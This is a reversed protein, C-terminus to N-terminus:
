HPLGAKQLLRGMRPDDRLRDFAPDVGLDAAYEDREEVAQELLAFAQDRRGLAAHVVAKVYPSAGPAKELERLVEEAEEPRGAGAAVYGYVALSFGDEPALTRAQGAADLAESHRGLDSYTAALNALLVPSEPFLALAEEYARVSEEARRAYAYMSGLNSRAGSAMPDVEVARRAEAIAEDARGLRM